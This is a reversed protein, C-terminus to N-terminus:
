QRHVDVEVLLEDTGGDTYIVGKLPTVDTYDRGWAVTVHRDSLFQRNTPDADIWGIGPVGLSLWAHSADAGQLKPQGPPPDTELYGSVYRAPLGLSRLCGIALHAFDQCVGARNALVEDVPTTVDTAVPDFEFEDHIRHVLAEYAALVPRGPTFSELAYQRLTDDFRVSRSALLFQRAQRLDPDTSSEVERAIDEWAPSTTPLAPADVTVDNSATVVLETHPEHVAFYGTRNGYVDLHDHLDSPGPMVHLGGDHRTQTATDRPHLVFVGHSETVPREYRYTTRHVVRYRPSM